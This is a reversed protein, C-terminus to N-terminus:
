KQNGNKLSRQLQITLRRIEILDWPVDSVPIGVRHMAYSDTIKARANAQYALVKDKNKARWKDGLERHKGKNKLYYSTAREKVKETNEAYYKAQYEKMQSPNDRYRKAALAKCREANAKYWNAQREKIEDAPRSARERQKPSTKRLESVCRKCSGRKNMNEPTREHGRKCLKVPEM